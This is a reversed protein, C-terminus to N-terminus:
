SIVDCSEEYLSEIRHRYHSEIQLRRLRGNPTAQDNAPSFAADALLWRSVRAYDPLEQNCQIIAFAIVDPDVGPRPLVVAVNWPRGEGFVAAQAIAPHLCLEREVWEPAVNRGFATIFMNKRRGTIHLFGNEDLHGLDGTAVADGIERLPEGIYGLYANGSVLVEGGSGIRVRLHPLPRGVSGAQTAQPTNLAVVSACESLGYGEYVPLGLQKATALLRPAVPAGGVAVFRLSSPAPMGAEIARVLAHLLEPVLILTTARSERLTELCRRPDFGSAGQLGVDASSRLCVTAGALLPAYLGGINELLTPLPLACLHRDQATAGTAECLSQAVAEMSDLALCVGKPAGTTGSTYTIKRTGEPVVASSASLRHLALTSGEVHLLTPETLSDWAAPLAPHALIADAGSSILSHRIQAASFFLPLPVVCLGADLAALDALAWAMGNDAYLGVTRVGAQRLQASLERIASELGRYDLQTSDAELAICDGQTRAHAAIAAIVHSM